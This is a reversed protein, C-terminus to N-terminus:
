FWVNKENDIIKLLNIIESNFLNIDANPPRYVCGLLVKFQGTSPSVINVFLCEIFSNMRCLDVREAFDLQNNIFFGVGGGTKNIRTNSLFTYGPIHYLDQTDVTLWTETVAIASISGSILGLLNM